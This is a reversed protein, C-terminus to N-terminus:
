QQRVRLKWVSGDSLIILVNRVLETWEIRIRGGGRIFTDIEIIGGLLPASLFAVDEVVKGKIGIGFLDREEYAHVVALDGDISCCLGSGNSLTVVEVILGACIEQFNPINDFNDKLIHDTRVVDDDMREVHVTSIEPIHTSSVPLEGLFSILRELLLHIRNTPVCSEQHTLGISLARRAIRLPPSYPPPFCFRFTYPHQM